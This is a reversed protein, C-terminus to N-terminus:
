QLGERSRRHCSVRLTRRVTPRVLFLYVPIEQRVYRDLVRSIRRQEKKVGKSTPIPLEFWDDPEMQFCREILEAHKSRRQKRDRSFEDAGGKNIEISM